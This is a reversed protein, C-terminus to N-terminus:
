TIKRWKRSLLTFNATEKEFKWVWYDGNKVRRYENFVVVVDGIFVIELRVNIEHLITEGEIVDDIKLGLKKCFDANTYFPSGTELWLEGCLKNM